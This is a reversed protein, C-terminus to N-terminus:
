KPVSLTLSSLEHVYRASTLDDPAVLTPTIPLGNCTFALFAPHRDLAPDLESYSLTVEYPASSPSAADLAARAVVVSDVLGAKTAKADAGADALLAAVSVGEFEGDIPGYDSPQRVRARVRAFRGADRATLAFPRAVEGSISVASAAAPRQVTPLTCPTAAAWVLFTPLTAIWPM